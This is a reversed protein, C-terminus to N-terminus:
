KFAVLYVSLGVTVPMSLAVLTLSGASLAQRRVQLLSQEATQVAINM